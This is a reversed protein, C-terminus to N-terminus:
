FYIKNIILFSKIKGLFNNLLAIKKSGIKRCFINKRLIIKM